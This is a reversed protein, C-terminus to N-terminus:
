QCVWVYQTESVVAKGRLVRVHSEVRVAEYGRQCQPQPNGPLIAILLFTIGLGLALVTFLGWAGIWLGEGLPGHRRALHDSTRCWWASFRWLWSTSTTM